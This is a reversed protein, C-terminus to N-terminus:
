RKRSLRAVQQRLSKDTGMRGTFRNVLASLTSGDRRFHAAVEGVPFGLEHMLVYSVLTRARSVDWSRDKSRLLAPAIKLQSAIAKLAASLSKPSRNSPQIVTESKVREGFGETGLFQQDAVKYYEPKHGEQLGDIVFRKYGSPGDFLGLGSAPDLLDTPKAALYIAHSSFPYEEPKTVLKARVPNLHIYRILAYLYPERECVIAKYRGQFVHGVQGHVRNFYQTYSQQVGQMFKALPPDATELLLHVHNPMLCYAYLTLNFKTRYKALRELYARYDLPGIFVDQQRNGRTIVHYLLGTGFVRPHRAM